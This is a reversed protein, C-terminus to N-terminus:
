GVSRRAEEWEESAGSKGMLGSEYLVEWGEEEEEGDDIVQIGEVKSLRFAHKSSDVNVSARSSASTSMREGEGGEEDKQEEGDERELSFGEAAKRRRRQRCEPEM